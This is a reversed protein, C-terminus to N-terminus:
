NLAMHVGSITMSLAFLSFSIWFSIIAYKSLKCLWISETKYAKELGRKKGSSPFGLLRMFMVTRIYAYPFGSFVRIEFSKFYPEKFYTELVRKPMVFHIIFVLIFNLWLCLVSYMMLEFTLTMNIM